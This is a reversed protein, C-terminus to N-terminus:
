SIPSYGNQQAIFDLHVTDLDLLAPAPKALYQRTDIVKVYGGCKECVHIKATEEGEVTLFHMTEFDENGCHSCKLRNERWNYECRPCHLVKEGKDVIQGLRVPEGCCPCAQGGEAQVSGQVVSECNQALVRLYPRIAHEALFHPLWEPLQYKAAFKEFYYTNMAVTEAVWEEVMAADLSKLAQRLPSEIGQISDALLDVLQGVWALYLKSDVPLTLRMVLPIRNNVSLAELAHEYIGPEISEQWQTQLQVIKEQLERYEPSVYNSM